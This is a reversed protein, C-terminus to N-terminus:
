EEELEDEGFQTNDQDTAVKRNLFQDEVYAWGEITLIPTPPKNGQMPDTLYKEGNVIYKVPIEVQVLFDTVPEFIGQNYSRSGPQISLLKFNISINM